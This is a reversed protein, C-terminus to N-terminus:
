EDGLSRLFQQDDTIPFLPDNLASVIKVGEV